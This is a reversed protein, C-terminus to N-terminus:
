GRKAYYSKKEKMIEVRIAKYDEFSAFGRDFFLPVLCEGYPNATKNKVCRMKMILGIKENESSVKPNYNPVEIWNRRALKIRLSSYFKIARGGPTHEKDGFMMADMTDRVQNVLLLHTGTKECIHVISPLMKNFLLAVAGIKQDKSADKEVKEMESKPVCAPVTDVAILPIGAKALKIVTDMVQEGYDCRFVLMQRPSVFQLARKEDYTGEAPIYAGLKVMSMLHFTLSTKGSSEPGFLETIRGLPMGGGIIADFDEIGTTWRPILLETHKNGATFVSGKGHKKEFEKCALQILDKDM